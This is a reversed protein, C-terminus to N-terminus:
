ALPALDIRDWFSQKLSGHVLTRVRGESLGALQDAIERVASGDSLLDEKNLFPIIRAHVGAGKLAGQPHALLRALAGPTITDGMQLDTVSLFRELRFVWRDTAPKGLCDVGLVPIVLDSMTPIVPEWEEPAKVPRGAAGDAEVLLHDAFGLCTRLAADDLGDIKGTSPIIRGGVTVHHVARFEEPLRSVQPDESLLILRPSQVPNPPFIKTTTTTIVKRGESAIERALAYMLSTKGGAGTIAITRVSADISFCETLSPTTM